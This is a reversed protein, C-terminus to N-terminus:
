RANRRRSGSARARGGGSLSSGCLSNTGRGSVVLGYVPVTEEIEVVAGVRGLGASPVGAQGDILVMRRTVHVGDGSLRYFYVGAAMAQGAADTADWRATHFGGGREGNVLTAIRQGLINFVALRVHMATPLQYPIITSPNFPNPYNQGLAFSVPLASGALTALPLAFYGTGDTMARVIAGRQLDTLDFLRVQADAVPEGSELQVRGELLSEAGVSVSLMLGIFIGIGSKM